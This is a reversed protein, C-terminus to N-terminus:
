REEIGQILAKQEELLRDYAKKRHRYRLENEYDTILRDLRSLRERLRRDGSGNSLLPIFRERERKLSRVIAGLVPILDATVDAGQKEAETLEEYRALSLFLDYPIDVAVIEDGTDAGAQAALPGGSCCLCLFAIIRIVHYRAPKKSM